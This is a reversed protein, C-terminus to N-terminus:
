EMKGDRRRVGSQDDRADDLTPKNEVLAAELVPNFGLTAGAVSIEASMAAAKAVIDAPVTAQAAPGGGEPIRVASGAPVEVTVGAATVTAVGEEVAVTISDGPIREILISTGRLGVGVSGMAVRYATSDLQGSVFRFFGQAISLAVVDNGNAINLEVLVVASNEHLTLTSEDILAVVSYSDSGTTVTERDSLETGTEVPRSVGDADASVENVAVHATGIDLAHGPTAVLAFASAVFFM